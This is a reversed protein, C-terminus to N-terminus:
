KKSHTKKELEEARRKGKSSMTAIFSPAVKHLSSGSRKYDWNGERVWREANDVAISTGVLTPMWRMRCLLPWSVGSQGQFVRQNEAPVTRGM